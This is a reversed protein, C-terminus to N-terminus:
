KLPRLSERVGFLGLPHLHFHTLESQFTNVDTEQQRLLEQPRTCLTSTHMTRASRKDLHQQCTLYLVSRTLSYSHEPPVGSPCWARIHTISHSVTLSHGPQLFIFVLQPAVQRHSLNFHPLSSPLHPINPHYISISPVKHVPKAQQCHPFASLALSPFVIFGRRSSHHNPTPYCFTIFFYYTVNWYHPYTNLDFPFILM